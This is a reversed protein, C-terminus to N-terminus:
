DCLAIRRLSPPETFEGAFRRTSQANLLSLPGCPCPPDPPFSGPWFLLCFSRLSNRSRWRVPPLRVTSSATINLDSLSHVSLQSSLSVSCQASLATFIRMAVLLRSARPRGGYGRRLWSYKKTHSKQMIPLRCRWRWGRWLGVRFGAAPAHKRASDYLLM